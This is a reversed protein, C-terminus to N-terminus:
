PVRKTAEGEVVHAHETLKQVFLTRNPLGTLQDYYALKHIKDEAASRIQRMNDANKRILGQSIMIAEGIEDNPSYPSDSIEPNDPNRQAALLDKRMFLIPELLWKGLAIMLVTTVLGSLLLMIILSQKAYEKLSPNINNSNLRAVVIYPKYLDSSNFVVEYNNNDSSLSTQVLDQPNNLSLSVPAGYSDLFRMDASYIAFGDIITSLLLVNAKEETFPSVRVDYNVEINAALATRGIESANNLLTIKEQKMTLFLVSIQVALITCFVVLAIKWSLKSRWIQATSASQATFSKFRSKRNSDSSSIKNTAKRMISQKNETNLIAMIGGVGRLFEATLVANWCIFM